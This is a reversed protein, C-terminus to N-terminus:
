PARFGNYSCRGRRPRPLLAQTRLVVFEAPSLLVPARGSQQQRERSEAVRLQQQMEAARKLSGTTKVAAMGEEGKRGGIGQAGTQRGARM